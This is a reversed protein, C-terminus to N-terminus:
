DALQQSRINRDAMKWRMFHRSLGGRKTIQKRDVASGDSFVSAMFHNIANHAEPDHADASAHM